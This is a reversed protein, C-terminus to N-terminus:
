AVALLNRWPVRPPSSPVYDLRFALNSPFLYKNFIAQKKTEANFSLPESVVKRFSSEARHVKQSILNGTRPKGWFRPLKCSFRFMASIPPSASLSAPVSTRTKAGSYWSKSGYLGFHPTKRKTHIIPPKKSMRPMSTSLLRAHNGGYQLHEYKCAGSNSESPIDQSNILSFRRLGDLVFLVLKIKGTVSLIITFMAACGHGSRLTNSSQM